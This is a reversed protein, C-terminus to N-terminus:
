RKAKSLLKDVVLEYVGHIGYVRREVKVEPIISLLKSGGMGELLHTGLFSKNHVLTGNTPSISPLSIVVTQITTM